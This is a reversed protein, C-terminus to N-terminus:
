GFLGIACCHATTALILVVTCPIPLKSVRGSDKLYINWQNFIFKAKSYDRRTALFSLELLLNLVCEPRYLSSLAVIYWNLMLQIHTLIYQPVFEEFLIWFSPGFTNTSNTTVGMPWSRRLMCWPWPWLPWMCEVTRLFLKSFM